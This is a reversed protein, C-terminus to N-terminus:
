GLWAEWIAKNNDVWERAVEAASRGDIDVPALFGLQDDTSM